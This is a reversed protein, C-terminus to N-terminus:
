PKFTINKDFFYHVTAKIAKVEKEIQSTTLMDTARAQRM